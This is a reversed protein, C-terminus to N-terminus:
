SELELVILQVEFDNLTIVKISKTKNKWIHIM